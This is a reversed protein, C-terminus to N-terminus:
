RPPQAFPPVPWNSCRRERATLKESACLCFDTFLPKCAFHGCAAEQIEYFVDSVAESTFVPLMEAFGEALKDSLALESLPYWFVDREDSACLEGFFHEATYLFVIYRKGDAGKHFKKIGCLRPNEITLGMEEKVERIM